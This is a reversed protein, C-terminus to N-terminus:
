SGFSDFKYEAKGMGKPMCYATHWCIVMAPKVPHVTSKNHKLVHGLVRCGSQPTLVTRVPLYWSTKNPKEKVSYWWWTFRQFYCKFASGHYFVPNVYESCEHLGDNQTAHNHDTLSVSMRCSWALLRGQLSPMSPPVHLLPVTHPSHFIKIRRLNMVWIM